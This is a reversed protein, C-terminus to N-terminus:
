EPWSGLGVDEGQDPGGRFRLEDSYISQTYTVTHDTLPGSWGQWTPDTVPKDM